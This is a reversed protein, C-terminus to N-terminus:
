RRACRSMSRPSRNTARRYAQRSRWRARSASASASGARSSTRTATWSSGARLRVREMLWKIRAAREHPAQREQARDAAGGPAQAVTMRPNLSAYPDQFVMQFAPGSRDCNPRADHALTPMGAFQIFGADPAILRMILKALTSKGCGSEGVLGLAQGEEIALDVGDVARVTRRRSSFQKVLGTVRLIPGTM